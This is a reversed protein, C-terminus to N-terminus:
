GPCEATPPGSGVRVERNKTKMRSRFEDRAIESGFVCRVWSRLKFRNQGDIGSGLSCQRMAM